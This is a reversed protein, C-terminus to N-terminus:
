LLIGGDEVRSMGTKVVLLAVVIINYHGTSTSLYEM